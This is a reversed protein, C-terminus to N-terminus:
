ADCSPAVLARLTGSRHLAVLIPLAYTQGVRISPEVGTPVLCGLIHPVEHARTRKQFLREGLIVLSGPPEVSRERAWAQCRAGLGLLSHGEHFGHRTDRVCVALWIGRRRLHHKSCVTAVASSNKQLPFLQGAVFLPFSAVAEDLKFACMDAYGGFAAFLLATTMQAVPHMPGLLCAWIRWQILAFLYWVAEADAYFLSKTIREPLKHFDPMHQHEVAYLLLPALVCCHIVLPVVLRFTLGQFYRKSPQAKTVSGSLFAFSRTCWPNLWSKIHSAWPMKKGSYCCTWHIVMIGLMLWFKAIDLVACRAELQQNPHGNESRMTDIDKGTVIFANACALAICLSAALAASLMTLGDGDLDDHAPHPASRPSSSSAKHQILTQPNPLESESAGPMDDELVRGGSLAQGVKRGWKQLLRLAGPDEGNSPDQFEAFISPCSASLAEKAFQVPVAAWVAVVCLAAVGISRAKLPSM